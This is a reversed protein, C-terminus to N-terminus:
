FLRGCCLPLRSNFMVLQTNRQRTDRKDYVVRYSRYNGSFGCMYVTTVVLRFFISEKYDLVEKNLEIETRAMKEGGNLKLYLCSKLINKMM